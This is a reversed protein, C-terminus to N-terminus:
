VDSRDAADASNIVVTVGNYATGGATASLILSNNDVGGTTIATYTGASIIGLGNGAITASFVGGANVASAVDNASANASRSINLTNNGTTYTASRQATPSM